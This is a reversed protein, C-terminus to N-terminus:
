EHYENLFKCFNAILFRISFLKVNLFDFLFQSKFKMVTKKISRPMKIAIGKDFYVKKTDFYIYKVVAKVIVEAVNYDCSECCFM